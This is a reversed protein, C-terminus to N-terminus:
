HHAAVQSGVNDLGAASVRDSARNRHQERHHQHRGSARATLGRQRLSRRGLLIRALGARGRTGGDPLNERHTGIV